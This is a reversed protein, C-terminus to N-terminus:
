RHDASRAVPGAPVPIFEDIQDAESNAELQVNLGVTLGNDLTTQGIFCIESNHKQDVVNNKITNGHSGAIPIIDGPGDKINQSAGVGWQQFYGGLGVKIREAAKSTYEQANADGAAGAVLAATALATTALLIKKM